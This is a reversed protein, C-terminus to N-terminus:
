IMEGLIKVAEPWMREHHRQCSALDRLLEVMFVASGQDNGFRVAPYDNPAEELCMNRVALLM